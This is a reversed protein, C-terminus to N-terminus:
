QNLESSAEVNGDVETVLLFREDKELEALVASLWAIEGERTV